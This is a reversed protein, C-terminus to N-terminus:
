GYLPVLQVLSMHVYIYEEAAHKDSRYDFRAKARTFSAKTFNSAMGTIYCSSGVAIVSTRNPLCVTNVHDNLVAPTQLKLLAVDNNITSRSYLPHIKVLSVRHRKETTDNITRHLDGVIVTLAWASYYHVCHAATLVWDPAILSGGCTFRGYRYLGIQWPWAGKRANEGGIVHAQAM